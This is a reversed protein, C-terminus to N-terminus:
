FTYFILNNFLFFIAKLVGATIVLPDILVESKGTLENCVQLLGDEDDSASEVVDM